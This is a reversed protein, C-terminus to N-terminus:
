IEAKGAGCYECKCAKSKNMYACYHCKWDSKPIKKKPVFRDLVSNTTDGVKDLVTNSAKADLKIEHTNFNLSANKLYAYRNIPKKIYGSKTHTSSKIM